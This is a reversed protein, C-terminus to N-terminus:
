RWGRDWKWSKSLSTRLPKKPPEGPGPQNGGGGKGGSGKTGGEDGGFALGNIVTDANNNTTWSFAVSSGSFTVDAEATTTPTDDDSMAFGKTTSVFDFAGTPDAANIDQIQFTAEVGSGAIGLAFRGDPRDGSDKCHSALLVATPAVAISVNQAVPVSTNTSKLFTFAAAQIGKLFLAGVTMSAGTATTRSVTEGDSGFSVHSAKGDTVGSGDMKWVLADDDSESFTAGAPTNDNAREFVYWQSGAANSDAVGLGIHADGGVSPVTVSERGDHLHIAATPRFGVGTIALNGTATGTAWTLVKASVNTGGLAIIGINWAENNNATWSLNINTADWSVFTGIVPTTEGWLVAHIPDARRGSSANSTAAAGDSATAVSFHTTGDTVGMAFFSNSQYGGVLGRSMVFIAAKPTSGLGHPFSQSVPVSTNTSKTHLTVSVAM